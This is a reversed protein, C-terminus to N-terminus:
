LVSVYKGKHTSKEKQKKNLTSTCYTNNNLLKAVLGYSKYFNDVFGSHGALLKGDLLTEVIKETHGKGATKNLM